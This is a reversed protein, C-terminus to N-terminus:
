GAARVLRRYTGAADGGMSDRESWRLGRERDVGFLGFRPEYSGWEYNDALTWHYYRTVPVGADRASTVASVHAELYRERTWGDSREHARGRRVRNCIGNEVVWVELGPETVTSLWRQMGAPDPPDDWLERFPLPNRGGASRHGPVRVHSALVPDYWDVQVVDLLRHHISRYVETTSRPLAQDLPLASASLRRLAADFRGTAPHRASQEARRDAMWEALDDRAVGLGPAVLADTLMRDLEYTTFAYTNLAVISEPQAEKIKAYALVHGALLNDISRVLSRVDGLRGPPFGGTLWTQLALVNPENITVWHRCRSGLRAVAVGVWEAFRDPSNLETWFREGLWEPHTFHHLTVLPELGRDYCADLISEYRAFAEDDYIGESTECRAWEVGLRFTTCGLGAVRDLAEEYRNWFDLAIGSPEVRGDHEWRAWNNSPERPGNIGGEIQFAATAVGFRMPASM